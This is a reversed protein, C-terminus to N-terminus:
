CNRDKQISPSKIKIRYWSKRGIISNYLGLFRMLYVKKKISNFTLTFFLFKIISTIIKKYTKKLAFFYGHHKKNFYFTSWMLHWNRSFEIENFFKDNAAKAGLHEIKAKRSVYIKKGSNKIRKCLDIDDFYMFINEDFFGIDKLRNKDLLLACGQIYDVEFFESTAPQTKNNFGYNKTSGFGEKLGNSILTPALIAFNNIQNSTKDLEELTDSQLRVDPNLVFVLGTKSLKIGFNNGYCYGENKNMIECKVNSYKKEIKKKFNENGSNEVIIVPYNDPISLLCDDIVKDSEYTVIVFTLNNKISV